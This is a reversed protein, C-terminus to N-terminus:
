KNAAKYLQYWAQYDVFTVCGDLDYDVRGNFRPDGDCSGLASRILMFDAQDVKGDGNLDAVSSSDEDMDPSTSTANEQLRTFVEDFFAETAPGLPPDVTKRAPPGVGEPNAVGGPVPPGVGYPYKDDVKLLNNTVVSYTTIAHDFDRGLEPSEGTWANTGGDNRPDAAGGPGGDDGAFDRSRWYTSVFCSPKGTKPNKGAHEFIGRNRGGVFPCTGVRYRTGAPANAPTYYLHFSPLFPPRGDCQLELKEGTDSVLTAVSGFQGWTPTLLVGDQGAPVTSNGCSGFNTIEEVVPAAGAGCLNITFNAEELSFFASGKAPIGGAFVVTGSSVNSITFSVPSGTENVKGEYGTPHAWACAIYTCLGDGDFGFIDTNSSINISFVPKNSNNQVGILTDEIGDYPGQTPDTKITPSGDPNFIILVACSKDAGVAPCQTFPPTTPGAGFMPVVLATLLFMFCATFKM